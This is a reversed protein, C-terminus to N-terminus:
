ARNRESARNLAQDFDMHPYHKLKTERKKMRFVTIGLKVTLELAVKGAAEVIELDDFTKPSGDANQWPDRRDWFHGTDMHDVGDFYIERIGLYGLFPLIVAEVYSGNMLSIPEYGFQLYHQPIAVGSIYDDPNQDGPYISETYQVYKAPGIVNRLERIRKSSFKVKSNSSNRPIM